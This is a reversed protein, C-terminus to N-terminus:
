GKWFDNEIEALEMELETVARQSNGNSEGTQLALVEVEVQEIEATFIALDADDAAIDDSEWISTPILSAAYIKGNHEGKEIFQIGIGTLIAIVAAAVALKYIIKRYSSVNTQRQLLSMAIESKIGAILEDSPQPAPNDRLIQEGKRIDDVAKQAEQAGVFKGFLVELNEEKRRKM